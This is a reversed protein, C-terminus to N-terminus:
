PLRCKKTKRASRLEIAARRIGCTLVYIGAYHSSTVSGQGTQAYAEVFRTRPAYRGIARSLHFIYPNHILIPEFNNPAYLVWDSESPLGLPALDRDAEREDRFELSYNRKEQFLTSSGRINLRARSRLDPANTLSSVGGRPEYMSVFVPYEGNAPVGGGGYAHILVLPLTSTASAATPNLQVYYEGTLRGPFLGPSFTRARVRTSVEIRIAGTAERSAETPVSGDLTYRVVATATGRARLTLDFPELFTGGIRSFEVEPAFGAGGEGNPSGPTPDVFYGTRTPDTPLRGYSVDESQEPYAPAFASAVGGDPRMLALYGGARSLRFNTHLRGTPGVRDKGSAFVVLRSRADLTVQGFKWRMPVTADDTLAWGALDVVQESANEIEIWDSPDGDEDNLTDENDAMFESITVGPPPLNPDVTYEWRGGGFPNRRVSLDRIGADAAWAVQVTGEAPPAFEFVYQDGGFGTVATAGVGDVSLDGADVGEVPESFLVTVQRLERMRSGAAPLVRVVVPPVDDIETELSAEFVFDSSGSISVNCAQVALVNNGAVLINAFDAVEYTETPIPEAFTGSATTDYDLDGDPMNFRVVPKGNIWAAFGDDSLARLRVAGLASPESVSFAKRLYVCTYGGRMDPLETGSLAEGYFFPAPGVSWGRDDFGVSRWATADPASAEGIGKKWRWETDPGFVTTAGSVAGALGLGAVMWGFFGLLKMTVFRLRRVFAPCYVGGARNRGIAERLIILGTVNEAGREM